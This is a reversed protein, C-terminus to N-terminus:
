WQRYSQPLGGDKPEFETEDAEAARGTLNGNHVLFQDFAPVPNGLPTEQMRQVVAHDQGARFGLLEGGIDAPQHM